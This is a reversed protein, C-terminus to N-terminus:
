QIARISQLLVAYNQCDSKAEGESMDPVVVDSVSVISPHRICYFRCFCQRECKTPPRRSSPSSGLSVCMMAM